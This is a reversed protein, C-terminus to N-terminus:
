DLVAERHRRRLASGVLWGLGAVVALPILIGLAGIAVNMAAVLSDLAGEVAAGTSDGGLAAVASGDTLTVVVRGYDARERLVELQRSLGLVEGAVLRLRGPLATAERDSRANALRDLLSRREARAADVRDGATEV